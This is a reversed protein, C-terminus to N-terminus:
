CTADFLFGFICEFVELREFINKLSTIAVDVGV